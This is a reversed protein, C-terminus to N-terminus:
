HAGVFWATVDLGAKWSLGSANHNRGPRRGGHVMPRASETAHAEGATATVLHSWGRWQRQAGPRRGPAPGGDVAQDVVGVDDRQVALGVAGASVL